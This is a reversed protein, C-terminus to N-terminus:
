AQGNQRAWRLTIPRSPRSSSHGSGRPQAIRQSALFAGNLNGLMYAAFITIIINRLM